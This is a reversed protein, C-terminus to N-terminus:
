IMLTTRVFKLVAESQDSLIRHSAKKIEFIPIGVKHYEHALSKFKSDREGYVFKLKNSLLSIPHILFDQNGLSLENLMKALIMRDFASEPREIKSQGEFVPQSMWDLIVQDWPENLFRIAWKRDNERRISKDSEASLGLHTSFLFLHSFFDPRALFLHAAIRGGLSYGALIHPTGPAGAKQIESLLLPGINKFSIKNKKSLWDSLPFLRVDIEESLSNFLAGDSSQGLFGHFFWFIPKM